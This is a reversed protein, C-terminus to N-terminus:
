AIDDPELEMVVGDETGQGEVFYHRHDIYSVKFGCAKALNQSATNSIRINARILNIVAYHKRYKDVMLGERWEFLKKDFAQKCLATVSEKGYGMNRYPKFIYWEIEAMHREEDYNYLGVEGVMHGSDKECVAFHYPKSLSFWGLSERTLNFSTYLLFDGDEKLHKKYAKHMEPEVAPKLVLRETHIESNSNTLESIRNKHAILRQIIFQYEEDTFKDKDVMDIDIFTNIANWLVIKFSPNDSNFLTKFKEIDEENEDYVSVDIGFPNFDYTEAVKNEIRHLKASMKQRKYLRREQSNMKMVVRM